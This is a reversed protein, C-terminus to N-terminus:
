HSQRPPSSSQILSVADGELYPMAFTSALYEAVSTKGCGAPGTIIWIHRHQSVATTSPAIASNASASNSMPTPSSASMHDSPMTPTQEYHLMDITTSVHATSYGQQPSTSDPVLHSLVADVLYTSHLFLSLPILICLPLFFLVLSRARPMYLEYKNARLSVPLWIEPLRTRWV